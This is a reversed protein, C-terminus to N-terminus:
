CAGEFELFSFGLKLNSCNTHFLLASLGKTSIDAFQESSSVFQVQLLKQAVIERVFHIDVKIHKPM